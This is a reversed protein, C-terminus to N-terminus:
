AHAADEPFALAEIYREAFAPLGALELYGTGAALADAERLADDSMAALKAGEGAANGTNIVRSALASPLLGIRCASPINLDNGFAGALLVRDIEDEATGLADTLLSIGACLAAKAFQLERIDRQTLLVPEGTATEGGPAVTYARMGDPLTIIEKSFAADVSLRGDPALMGAALLCAVIDVLGSGCIGAPKGGGIVSCCLAGNDLYAHDIAGDAGRMGCRIRAGEFAPGAATSCAIRRAGSGLVLEGNTGIDMLLTTGPLHAFDTALLCGVTDAGVFGAILPLVEVDADPQVALGLTKAATTVRGCHLPQYPARALPEPSIGLLLHQMVTNGVVTCRTIETPSIRASAACAEILANMAQVAARRLADGGHECAYQIRTIVDAGFAAQPNLRGAAALQRGDEGSLLYCVITTTGIDFAAMYGTRPAFAVTRRAGSTLIQAGSSAPLFVTMDCDVRTRCALAANRSGNAEIEVRCKGCQGNGGCYAETLFGLKRALPYLPTNADATVAVDQPMFRVRYQRAM